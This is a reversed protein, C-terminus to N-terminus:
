SSSGLPAWLGSLPTNIEDGLIHRVALLCVARNTWGSWPQPGFNGLPMLLFGCDMKVESNSHRTYQNSQIFSVHKQHEDARKYVFDWKLPCLVELGLALTTRASKNRERASLTSGKFIWSPRWQWLSTGGATNQKKKGGVGM